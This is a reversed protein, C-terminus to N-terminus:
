EHNRPQQHVVHGSKIVACRHRPDTVHTIDTLPDADLLIADAVSGTTITGVTDRKGIKEAAHATAAAIIDLGPIGAKAFLQLERLLAHARSPMALAVDTGAVLKVGADHFLRLTSMTYDFRIKSEDIPLIAKGWMPRAAIEVAEEPAVIGDAILEDLYELDGTRGLQESMVVTPCYLTGARALLEAIEEAESPDSPDRPVFSHELADAGAHVADRLDAGAAVHVLVKKGADHAAAVVAELAARPLQGGHGPVSDYICKVYDVDDLMLPLHRCAADANDVQLALVTDVSETGTTEGHNEMGHLPWGDLGTFAPGAFYLSSATGDAAAAARLRRVEVLSGGLDCVSTIGTQIYGALVERQYAFWAAEPEFRDVGSLHVHGEWLGPILYGGRGDLIPEGDLGGPATSVDTGAPRIDAFRGETVLVDMGAQPPNSTGDLVTVNRIIM